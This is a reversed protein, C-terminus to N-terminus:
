PDNWIRHMPLGPSYYEPVPLIDSRNRSYITLKAKISESDSSVMGATPMM